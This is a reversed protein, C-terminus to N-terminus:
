ASRYSEGGNNIATIAKRWMGGGASKSKAMKEGGNIKAMAAAMVGNGHQWRWSNSKIGNGGNIGGGAAAASVMAKAAMNGSEAGYKASKVSESRNRRKKAAM